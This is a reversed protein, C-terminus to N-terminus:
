RVELSGAATVGRPKGLWSFYGPMKQDGSKVDEKMANESM